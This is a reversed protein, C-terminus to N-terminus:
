AITPGQDAPPNAVFVPAFGPPEASNGFFESRFSERAAIRVAPVGYLLGVGSVAAIGAGMLHLSYGMPRRRWMGVGAGGYTIASVLSPIGIMMVGLIGDRLEEGTDDRIFYTLAIIAIAVFALSIVCFAVNIALFVTILPDRRM